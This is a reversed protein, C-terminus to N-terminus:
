TSNVVSAKCSNALTQGHSLMQVLNVKSVVLYCVCANLLAESRQHLANQFRGESQYIESLVLDAVFSSLCQKSTEKVGAGNLM